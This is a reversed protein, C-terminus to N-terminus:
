QGVDYSKLSKITQIQNVAFPGWRPHGLARELANVADAYRGEGALAIGLACSLGPTRSVKPPLRKLLAITKEFEYEQNLLNTLSQIVPELLHIDESNNIAEHYARIAAQRRGLKELTSALGVRADISSSNTEIARRYFPLARDFESNQFHIFAVRMNSRFHSPNFKLYSVLHRRAEDYHHLDFEIDGLALYANRNQDDIHTAKRFCAAAQRSQSHEAFFVGLQYQVEAHDPFRSAAKELAELTGADDSLSTTVRALGLFDDPSPSESSTLKTYYARASRPDNTKEHLDACGRLCAKHDPDLDLATQYLRLADLYKGESVASNAHSYLSDPDNGARPTPPVISAKKHACGVTLLILLPFICAFIRSGTSTM